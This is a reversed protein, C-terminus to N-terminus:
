PEVEYVRLPQLGELFRRTASADFRADRAEIVLYFRDRSAHGVFSDVNFLPHYPRPLENLVFMWFVASLAAVLITTEFTVILFSPWSNFPRGGINLPYEVVHIWYQLAFGGIAGVIGGILVLWPLRTPRGGLAEYLGHVPMPTCADLNLYGAERAKRAAEVLRDPSDFEALLGHLRTM